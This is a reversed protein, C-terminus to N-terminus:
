PKEKKKKWDINSANYFQINMNYLTKKDETIDEPFINEKTDKVYQIIEKRFEVIREKIYEFEQRHVVFSLSSIDRWCPKTENLARSALNLMNKHYNLVSLSKVEAGTTIEPESQKLKGTEDRILYKMELLLLIAEHAQKKTIPPNLTKAIWAADEKFDPLAALERIALVYWNSFLFYHKEEIKSIEDKPKLKTIKKYIENKEHIDETFSLKVLLEFYDSEAATLNFGRAIKWAGPISLSRSGEILQKLYSHSGLDARRAFLRLTLNEKKKYYEFLDHLYKRYDLYKYINIEKNKEKM